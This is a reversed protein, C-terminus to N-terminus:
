LHVMCAQARQLAGGLKGPQLGHVRWGGSIGIGTSCEADAPVGLSMLVGNDAKQMEGKENQILILRV